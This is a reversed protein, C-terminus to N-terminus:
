IHRLRLAKRFYCHFRVGGFRGAVSATISPGGAWCQGRAADTEPSGTERAHRLEYANGRENVATPSWVASGARGVRAAIACDDAASRAQTGVPRFHEPPQNALQRISHFQAPEHKRISRGAM